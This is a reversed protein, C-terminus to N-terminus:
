AQPQERTCKLMRVLWAVLAALATAQIALTIAMTPVLEAVCRVAILMPIGMAALWPLRLTYLNQDSSKRDPEACPVTDPLREIQVEPRFAAQSAAAQCTEHLQRLAEFEAQLEESSEIARLVEAARIPTLEGDLLGSLEYEQIPETM